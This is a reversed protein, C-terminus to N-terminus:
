RDIEREILFWKLRDRVEQRLGESRHVLPDTKKTKEELWLCKHLTKPRGQIFGQVNRIPKPFKLVKKVKICRSGFGPVWWPHNNREETSLEGELLLIGEITSYPFGQDPKGGNRNVVEIAFDWQAQCLLPVRKSPNNQDRALKLSKQTFCTENPHWNEELRQPCPRGSVILVFKHERQISDPGWPRTEIDKPVDSESRKHTKFM